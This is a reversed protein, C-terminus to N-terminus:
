EESVIKVSHLESCLDEYFHAHAFLLMPYIVFVFVLLLLIFSLLILIVWFRDVSGLVKVM